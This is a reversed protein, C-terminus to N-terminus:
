IPLDRHLAEHPDTVTTVLTLLCTKALLLSQPVECARMDALVDFVDCKHLVEVEGGGSNQDGVEDPGIDDNANLLISSRVSLLVSNYHLESRKDAPIKRLFRLAERWQGVRGCASIVSTLVHASACQEPSSAEMRELLEIARRWQYAKGCATIVGTWIEKTPKIGCEVMEDLLSIAREWQALRSCSAILAIYTYLDPRLEQEKLTSLLSLAQGPAGGKECASLAANFVVLNPAVANNKMDQLLQLAKQWALGKGCASIASSYTKVNPAVNESRMTDLLAIAKEWAGNKELASMVATYSYVNPSVQRERMRELIDFCHGLRTCGDGGDRTHVINQKFHKVNKQVPGSACVAIAASYVVIDACGAHEAAELMKLALRWQGAVDRGGKFCSILASYSHGDPAVRAEQMSEYIDLAAKWQGQRFALAKLDDNYESVLKSGSPSQSMSSSSGGTLASEFSIDLPSASAGPTLNITHLVGFSDRSRAEANTRSVASSVSDSSFARRFRTWSGSLLDVGCTRLDIRPLCVFRGLRLVADRM